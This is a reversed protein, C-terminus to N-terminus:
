DGYRRWLWKARLDLPLALGKLVVRWLARQPRGQAMLIRAATGNIARGYWTPFPALVAAEMEARTM